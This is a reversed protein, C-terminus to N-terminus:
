RAPNPAKACMYCITVLAFKRSSVPRRMARWIRLGVRFHLFPVIRDKSLASIMVLQFLAISQMLDAM